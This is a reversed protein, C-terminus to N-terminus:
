GIKCSVKELLEPKARMYSNLREKLLKIEEGLVKNYSINKQEIKVLKLLRESM